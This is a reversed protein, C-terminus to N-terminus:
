IKMPMSIENLKREMTTKTPNENSSRQTLCVNGAPPPHGHEDHRVNGAPPLHGHEDCVCRTRLDQAVSTTKESTPPYRLIPHPVM